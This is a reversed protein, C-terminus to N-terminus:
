RTRAAAARVRLVAVFRRMADLALTDAEVVQAVREPDHCRAALVPLETRLDAMAAAWRAAAADADVADAGLLNVEAARLVEPVRRLRALARASRGCPTVRPARAAELVASHALALYLDPDRRWAGDRIPTVEREVRARLTDLAARREPGLADRDIAALSDSIAALLAADRALTAETVPELRRQAGDVGWRMALDPRETRVHEAWRAHAAAFRADAGPAAACPSTAAISLAAALALLTSRSM